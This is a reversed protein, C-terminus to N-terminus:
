VPCDPCRGPVMHMASFGLLQEAIEEGLAKMQRHMRQMGPLESRAVKNFAEQVKGMKPLLHPDLPGSNFVYTEWAFNFGGERPIEQWHPNWGRDEGVCRDLVRLISEHWTRSVTQQPVGRMHRAQLKELRAAIRHRNEEYKEAEELYEQVQRGLKSRGLHALFGEHIRRELAEDPRIHLAEGNSVIRQRAMEQEAIRVHSRITRVDRRSNEAIKAVKM